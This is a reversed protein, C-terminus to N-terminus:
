AGGRRAREAPTLIGHFVIDIVDRAQAALPKHQGSFHNTFMTGYVLDSIVDIIRSVPVGRVRGKRILGAYVARWQQCNAQHHEQYTPTKRDRFEAREIILLEAQDPHRKFFELYARIAVTLQDLPDEIGAYANQVYERLRRMGRDVAALFLKEKSPFYRYITGKALGLADAVHQVDTDPYGRRAFTRAAADLIEECRRVALTPDKRRGRRTAPQGM